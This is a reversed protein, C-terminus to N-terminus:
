AVGHGFSYQAECNPGRQIQGLHCFFNAELGTCRFRHCYVTYTSIKATSKIERIQSDWYAVPSSHTSGPPVLTTPKHRAVCVFPISFVSTELAADEDTVSWAVVSPGVAPALGVLREDKVITILGTCTTNIPWYTPTTLRYLTYTTDSLTCIM